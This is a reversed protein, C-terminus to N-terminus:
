CFQNWIMKKSALKIRLKFYKCWRRHNLRKRSVQFVLSFSMMELEKGNDVKKIFEM